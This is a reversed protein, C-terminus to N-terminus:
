RVRSSMGKAILERRLGATLRHGTGHHESHVVMSDFAREDVSSLWLWEYEGFMRTKDFVPHEVGLGVSMTTTQTGDIPMAGASLRFGLMNFAPEDDDDATAVATMSVLVLAIMKVMRLGGGDLFRHECGDRVHM